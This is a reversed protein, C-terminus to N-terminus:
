CLNRSVFGPLRLNKRRICDNDSSLLGMHLKGTLGHDEKVANGQEDKAPAPASSGMSGSVDIVLVIDCPVHGATSHFPQVPPQVKVLVGDKSELPHITVVPDDFTLTDTSKIPECDPDEEKSVLESPYPPCQEETGSGYSPQEIKM